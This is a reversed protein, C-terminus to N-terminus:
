SFPRGTGTLAFAGWDRIPAGAARREHSAAALAATPGLELLRRYFAVAFERATADAIPWLTGVVNEAGATLLAPVLGYPEDAPGFRILTGNCVSLIVLRASTLDMSALEGAHVAGDDSATKALLLRHSDRANEEPFDGHAAIHIIGAGPGRERLQQESADTGVYCEVEVDALRNAVDLVELEAQELPAYGPLKIEPNGLLLARTIPPRHKEALAHWVSASPTVVVGVYDSLHRGDPSRLAGWPVLHLVGHPSIIWRTAQAPDFGAELIPAVLLGWLSGLMSEAAVDDGERIAQRLLVIQWGLPSADLPALNDAFIRGVPMDETPLLPPIRPWIVAGAHLVACFVQSSPELVDHPNFFDILVEDPQLLELADSLPPVGTSATMGSDDNLLLQELTALSEARREALEGQPVPILQSALRLEANLLGDGLPKGLHLVANELRSVEAAVAPSPAGFSAHTLRDLLLRSKHREGERVLNLLDKQTREPRSWAALMMDDRLSDGLWQELDYGALLRGAVSRWGARYPELRAQASLRISALELYPDLSQKAASYFSAAMRVQDLNASTSLAREAHLDALDAAGHAYLLRAVRAHMSSEVGPQWPISISPPFASEVVAAARRLGARQEYWEPSDPAEGTLEDVSQLLLSVGQALDVVVFAEPCVSLAATAHALALRLLTKRDEEAATVQCAFYACDGAGTLARMQLDPRHQRRSEYASREFEEHLRRHEWTDAAHGLQVQLNLLDVDIADGVLDLRRYVAGALGFLMAWDERRDDSVATRGSEALVYAIEATLARPALSYIDAGANEPAGIRRAWEQAAHVDDESIDM